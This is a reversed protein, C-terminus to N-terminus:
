RRRGDRVCARVRALWAQTRAQRLQQKLEVIEQELSRVYALSPPEDYRCEDKYAICTTCKPQHGDCKSKPEREAEPPVVNHHLCGVKRRRCGTCTWKRHKARSAEKPKLETEDTMKGALVGYQELKM